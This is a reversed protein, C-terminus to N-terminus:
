QTSEQRTISPDDYIATRRGAVAASLPSGETAPARRAPTPVAM